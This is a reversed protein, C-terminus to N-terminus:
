VLLLSPNGLFLAEPAVVDLVAAYVGRLFLLLLLDLPVFSVGLVVAEEFSVVGDLLLLVVVSGSIFDPILRGVAKM